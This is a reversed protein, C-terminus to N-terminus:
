KKPKSKKEEETEEGPKLPKTREKPPTPTPGTETGPTSSPPSGMAASGPTPTKAIRWGTNQMRKEPVAVFYKDGGYNEVIHKRFENDWVSEDTKHALGKSQKFKSFVKDMTEQATNQGNKVQRNIQLWRDRDFQALCAMLIEPDKLSEPEWDGVHKRAEGVAKTVAAQKSMGRYGGVGATAAIKALRPDRRLTSGLFGSQGAHRLLPAIIGIFKEDELIKQDSMNKWRRFKRAEKFLDQSDNKKLNKILLGTGEAGSSTKTLIKMASEAGSEKEGEKEAREIAPRINGFERLKRPYVWKLPALPKVGKYGLDGLKSVGRSLKDVLLRAPREVVPKIGKEFIRGGVWGAGRAGGKIAARGRTKAINIVTSAGMASTQLGFVIGIGLFVLSVFYPLVSDFLGGGQTTPATVATGTDIEVVLLLGLYLFFGCTVGIFSWNIFQEWWKEFYKKTAPLIYCVFALPSLIVLLWIALYRLMFVLAFTLLIFTLIILFPVMVALQVVYPRAEEWSMAAEFGSSIDAVKRGMNAGFADTKLDQVFFNMVINSADIILGCIVPAFNVLLAVVIFTVLLKKTEYGALRLITAIAIYVLILVLLMNVFGQTIGLGTEIIPNGNPGGPKTYSFSIFNDSLVWNLLSGALGATWTAIETLVKLPFFVIYGALTKGWDKLGWALVPQAFCILGLSVFVLLFFSIKKKFIFSFFKKIKQPM